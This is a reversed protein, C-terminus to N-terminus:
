GINEEGMMSLQENAKKARKRQPKSPLPNYNRDPWEKDDGIIERYLDPIADGYERFRIDPDTYWLYRIAVLEQFTILCIEEPLPLSRRIPAPLQPDARLGVVNRRMAQQAELVMRLLHLRTARSYRGPTIGVGALKGKHHRLPEGNEDLRPERFHNKQAPDLTQKLFEYVEYMPEMWSYAPDEVLSELSANRSVVTCTWCGFRSNNCTASKRDVVLPCEGSGNASRYLAALDRNYNLGGWPSPIQLLATWVDDTTWDALPAYVYAARLSHNRQFPTGPIDYRDMREERATSEGRRTGLVTIVRGTHAICEKILRNAPNIKLLDVCWRFRVSHPASRGIGLVTVWYTTSLDPGVKHTSIPLGERRAIAQIQVLAQDIRAAIPYVEVGTDGAVVYMHRRRDRKLYRREAPTLRQWLRRLALITLLVLLTSDKGASFGVVWPLEYRLYVDIIEDLIEPLTKSDFISPQKDVIAQTSMSAGPRLKERTTADRIHLMLQGSIQTPQPSRRKM